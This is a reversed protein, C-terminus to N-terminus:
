RVRYRCEHNCRHAVLQSAGATDDWKDLAHERTWPEEIKFARMATAAKCYSEKAKAEIDTVVQPDVGRVRAGSLLSHISLGANNLTREQEGNGANAIAELESNIGTSVYNVVRDASDTDLPQGIVFQKGGWAKGCAEDALRVWESPHADGFSSASTVGVKAYEDRQRKSFIVLFLFWAPANPLGGSAGIDFAVDCEGIPQYSKGDARTSPPLLVFGTSSGNARGGRIDLGPAIASASNRIRTGKPYNFFQHEGTSPTRSRYTDPWKTEGHSKLLAALSAFGNKGEGPKNDIDLAFFRSREGTAGGIMATPWQKWWAIIQQHDKTAANPWDKIMPKKTKPNVPFVHAGLSAYMLAADLIANGTTTTTFTM